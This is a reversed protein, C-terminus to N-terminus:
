IGLEEGVLVVNIRGQHHQMAGDIIVTYNCIRWEHWCDACSGTKVCPLNSFQEAHHKLYHRRANVPAALQHIRELAEDVDKVIKNVGAVLIVKGPGFIMAAVRNGAGDINVLKGDLTVANTGAIFIDASFTERFMHQREAEEAWRGEADTEFPDIITNQNRGTLTKLLDIQDLTISDGRAVLAGRPILGMVISLAEKKDSAYFGNMKRKQLNEIVKQARQKNYFAKERSIDTEDVMM